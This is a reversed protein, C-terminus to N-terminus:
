CAHWDGLVWFSLGVDDLVTRLLLALRPRASSAVSAGRGRPARGVLRQLDFARNGHLESLLVHM